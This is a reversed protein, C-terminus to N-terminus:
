QRSDPASGGVSESRPDAVPARFLANRALYYGGFRIPAPAEKRSAAIRLGAGGEERSLRGLPLGAHVSDGEAVRLATLPWLRVLAAGDGRDVAGGLCRLVVVSDRVEDVVGDCPSWVIPTAAPDNRGFRGMKGIEVAHRLSDVAAFRNVSPHRGGQITHFTGDRLPFALGVTPEDGPTQALLAQLASFGLAVALVSLAVARGARIAVSELGRLRKGSWVTAALLLAPPLYRLPYAIEAWSGALFILICYSWFLWVDIAWEVRNRPTSHALWVAFLIPILLHTSVRALTEAM